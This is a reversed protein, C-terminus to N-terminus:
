SAASSFAGKQVVAKKRRHKVDTLAIRSVYQVTTSYLKDGASHRYNSNLFNFIYPVTRTM